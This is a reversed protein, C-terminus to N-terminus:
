CPGSQRDSRKGLQGGSTARVHIPTLFAAQALAVEGRRALELSAIFTSSWASRRRLAAQPAPESGREPDPLLQALLVGEPADALWRLLRARAAAITYLASHWPPQYVPITEVAPLDADFLALSAWLFEVVDVAAAADVAVGLVEPSQARSPPDGRAFVDRGLQPRQGLWAALTQAQQLHRLQDRLPDAEVQAAIQAPADAPLLLRTRRELLWAAM